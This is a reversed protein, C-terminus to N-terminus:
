LLPIFFHLAGAPALHFRLRAARHRGSFSCKKECVALVPAKHPIESGFKQKGMRM